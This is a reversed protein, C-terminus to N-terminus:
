HRTIGARRPARAVGSSSSKDNFAVLFASAVKNHAAAGRLSDGLQRALDSHGSRELAQALQRVADERLPPGKVTAVRCGARRQIACAELVLDVAQHCLGRQAFANIATSYTNTDPQGYRSSKMVELAALAQECDDNYLCASILCTGTQIDAQFGYRLPLERMAEFAKDLKRRKGWMKIVTSLTFTTPVVNLELMDGMLRDAVDFCSYRVCGDLLTNFIIVDAMLGRAQMDRFVELARPLNGSRCYGKIVISFTITNPECGDAQMKAFLAEAQKVDGARAQADILSTYVVVNMEVGADQMEKYMSMAGAADGKSAYGKILTSYIVANPPVKSIWMRFTNVAEDLSGDRVLADLM